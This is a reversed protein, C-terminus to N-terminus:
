FQLFLFDKSFRSSKVLFKFFSDVVKIAYEKFVLDYLMVSAGDPLALVEDKTLENFSLTVKKM